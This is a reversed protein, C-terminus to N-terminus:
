AVLRYPLSVVANLNPMWTKQKKEITFFVTGIRGVVSTRALDEEVTTSFVIPLFLISGFRLARVVLRLVLLLM